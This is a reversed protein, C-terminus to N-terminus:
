KKIKIEGNRSKYETIHKKIIREIEKSMSRDNKESIFKIKEIIEKDTRIMIAPKQSPM